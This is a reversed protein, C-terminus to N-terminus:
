KMGLSRMSNREGAEGGRLVSLEDCPAQTQELAGKPHLRCRAVNNEDGQHARPQHALTIGMRARTM